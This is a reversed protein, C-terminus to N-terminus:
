EQNGSHTVAGTAHAAGCHAPVLQRREDLPDLPALCRFRDDYRLVASCRCRAPVLPDNARPGLFRSVDTRAAAAGLVVGRVPHGRVELALARRVVAMTM